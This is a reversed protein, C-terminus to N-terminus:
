PLPAAKAKEISPARKKKGGQAYYDQNEIAVGKKQINSQNTQHGGRKIPPLSGPKLIVEKAAKEVASKDAPKGKPGVSNEISRSLDPESKLKSAQSAHEKAKNEKKERAPKKAVGKDDEDSDMLFDYPKFDARVNRNFQKVNMKELENLTVFVPPPKKKEVVNTDILMNMDAMLDDLGM